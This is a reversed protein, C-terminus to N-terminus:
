LPAEIMKGIVTVNYWLSAAAYPTLDVRVYVNEGAEYPIGSIFSNHVGAPYIVTFRVKYRFGTTALSFLVEEAESHGAGYPTVTIDTVLLRKGEPVTYSSIWPTSDQIDKNLFFLETSDAFSPLSKSLTIIDAANDNVEEALANFNDNVEDAVAPQGAEFVNPLTVEGAYIGTTLCLTLFLYLCLHTMHKKM